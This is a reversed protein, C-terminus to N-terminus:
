PDRGKHLGSLMASIGAYAADDDPFFNERGIREALGTRDLVRRVQPNVGSFVLATGNKYLGEQLSSLMEISSADLLNITSASVQM